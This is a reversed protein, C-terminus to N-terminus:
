LGQRYTATLSAMLQTMQADSLDYDVMAAANHGTLLGNPASETRASLMINQTEEAEAGVNLSVKAANDIWIEAASGNWRVAWVHFIGDTIAGYSGPNSTVAGRLTTALLGAGTMSLSFTRTAATASSKAIFFTSPILTRFVGWVTWSQGADAFLSATGFTGTGATMWQSGNFYPLYLDPIGSQTINDLAFVDQVASATAEEAIQSDWVDVTFDIANGNTYAFVLQTTAYATGAAMTNTAELEQETGDLVFIDTAVNTQLLGSDLGGCSLFCTGLNTAAGAVLQIKSQATWVESPAAAIDTVAPLPRMVLNASASPTGAWRVRFRGNTLATITRTLGNVSGAVTWNAPATGPAGSAVGVDQNNRLRNRIGVAPFRGLTGRLGSTSQTFNFSGAQREILGIPDGPNSAFVDAATTTFYQSLANGDAYFGSFDPQFLQRIDLGGYASPLASGFSTEGYAMPLLDPYASVGISEPYALPLTM